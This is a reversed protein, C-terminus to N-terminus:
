HGVQQLVLLEQIIAQAAPDAKLFAAIAPAAVAAVEAAAMVQADKHTKVVAAV